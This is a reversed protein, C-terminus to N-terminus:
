FGFNGVPVVLTTTSGDTKTITMQIEEGVTEYTVTNGLIEITGSETANEGFLQEAM